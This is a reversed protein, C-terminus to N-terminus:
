KEKSPESMDASLLLWRQHTTMLQTGSYEYAIRAFLLIGVFLGLTLSVIKILNSTKGHYLTLLTYYLEKMLIRNNNGYIDSFLLYAM